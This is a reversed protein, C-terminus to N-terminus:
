AVDTEILRAATGMGRLHDALWQACARCDGERAPDSSVSPFALLERWEAGFRERQEEYDTEFSLLM